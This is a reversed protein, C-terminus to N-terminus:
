NGLVWTDNRPAVDSGGFLVSGAGGAFGASVRVPPGISEALVWTTGTWEWTDELGFGYGGFLVVRQRAGNWALMGHARKVPDLNVNSAFRQSWTSGNWEWTDNGDFGGFLVVRSRAFDTAMSHAYRGYPGTTSRLQWRTGNWSWTDEFVPPSASNILDTGGFLLVENTVPDFTMSAFARAPPAVTPMRITWTSTAVDYEWTDDLYTLGVKGGFLVARQRVPDYAMMTYTRASPHTAGNVQTWATGTFEWTDSFEQMNANMGGFVVARNRSSDWVM